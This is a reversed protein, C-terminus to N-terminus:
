NEGGGGGSGILVDERASAEPVGLAEHAWRRPVRVGLENVAVKLVDALERLDRPPSFRRQFFPVPVDPGLEFRTIPSLVDRRITRGEKVIDDRGLELRIENHAQTAAFSGSSRSTDTTLTEGLWAKSMERNFFECLREYPPPASGKGAEVFELEVAKSFVGAADAGLNQLMNLLERKEEPTASTDYRAVRVPMGFVEAFVMWDKMSFHKGLYALASARLLGGRMPHGTVSLPTHVVFKGPSLEIGRVPEEKTLIRPCGSEDFALRDFTVPVIDVLRLGDGESEWVNEAVAINRGFALSLHQLTEGFREIANLAERCLAAAEDAAARDVGERVEAASVVQWPLGTLALRRKSAVAYLHADKEEMQEYLSMAQDVAGQDALRLISVLRGPTLGDAPYDRWHDMAEPQVVRGLKPRVLSEGRRRFANVVRTMLRSM